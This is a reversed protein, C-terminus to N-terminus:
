NLFHLAVVPFSSLISDIHEVVGPRILGSQRNRHFPVFSLPSPQLYVINLPNAEALRLFLFGRLIAGGPTEIINM